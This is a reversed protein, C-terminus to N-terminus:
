NLDQFAKDNISHFRTQSLHYVTWFFDYDDDDISSSYSYFSRTKKKRQKWKLGTNKFSLYHLKGFKAIQIKTHKLKSYPTCYISFLPCYNLFTKLGFQDTLPRFLFNLILNSSGSGWEKLHAISPKQSWHGKLITNYDNNKMIIQHDTLFEARSILKM